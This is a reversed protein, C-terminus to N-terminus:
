TSVAVMAPRILNKGLVYGRQMEACVIGEDYESPMVTVANHVEYDFEKGIAEVPTVGIEKLSEMFHSYSQQYATEIEKTEDSDPTVAAFARDYNDIVEIIARAVEVRSKEDGSSKKVERERMIKFEAKIKEIKEGMEARNEELLEKAKVTQGDCKEIDEKLVDLKRQLFIPSNLIDDKNADGGEDAAPPTTGEEGEASMSIVSTAGRSFPIPAFANCSALTLFLLSYRSFIM